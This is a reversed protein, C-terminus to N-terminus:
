EAPTNAQRATLLQMLERRSVAVRNIKVTYRNLAGSALWRSITRPTVSALEAAEKKTLVDSARIKTPM